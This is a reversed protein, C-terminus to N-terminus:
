SNLFSGRSDDEQITNQYIYPGLTSQTPYDQTPFLTSPSQISTFPYNLLPMNYFPYSMQQQQEFIFYLPM